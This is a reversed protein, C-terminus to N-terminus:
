AVRPVSDVPEKREVQASHAWLRLAISGKGTSPKFDVQAPIESQSKEIGQVISTLSPASAGPSQQALAFCCFLPALGAMTLLPRATPLEM